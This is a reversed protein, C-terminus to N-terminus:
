SQTESLPHLPTNPSEDNQRPHEVSRAREKQRRKAEARLEDDTWQRRHAPVLVAIVAGCRECVQTRAGDARTIVRQRAHKGRCVISADAM